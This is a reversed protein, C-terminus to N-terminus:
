RLLPLMRLFNIGSLSVHVQLRCANLGYIFVDPSASIWPVICGACRRSIPFDSALLGSLEVKGNPLRRSLSCGATALREAHNEVFFHHSTCVYGQKFVDAPVSKPAEPNPLHLRTRRDDDFALNLLRTRSVSHALAAVPMSDTVDQM